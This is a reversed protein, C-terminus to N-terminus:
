SFFNFFKESIDKVKVGFKQECKKIHDKIEVFKLLLTNLDSSLAHELNKEAAKIDSILSSIIGIEKQQEDSVNKVKAVSEIVPSNKEESTVETKATATQPTEEIVEKSVESTAIIGEQEDTIEKEVDNLKDKKAM